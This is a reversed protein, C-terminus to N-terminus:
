PELAELREIMPLLLRAVEQETLEAGGSSDIVVRVVINGHQFEHGRDTLGGQHQWGSHWTPRDNVIPDDSSDYGAIHAPLMRVAVDGQATAITERSCLSNASDIAFTYAEARAATEFVRAVIRITTGDREYRGLDILEDDRAGSGVTPHGRVVPEVGHAFRCQANTTEVLQRADLAPGARMAVPAASGAPTIGLAALDAASPALTNVDSATYCEGSCPERDGLPGSSEPLFGAEPDGSAIFPDGAALADVDYPWSAMDEAASEVLTRFQEESISNDTSLGFRMVANARVLDFSYYRWGFEDVEVWGVGAVTEPLDLAPAPTVVANWQDGLRYSTCGDVLSVLSTMHAHAEESTLFLRMTHVSTSMENASGRSAIFHAADVPTSDAAPPPSDLAYALPVDPYTVFCSDPTGKSVTWGSAAAAFAQSPSSQREAGSGAYMVTLGATDYASPDLRAENIALAGFCPDDCDDRRVPEPDARPGDILPQAETPAFGFDDLADVLASTIGMVGGVVGAILGLAAATIGLGVTWRRASSWEQAPEDRLVHAQPPAAFAGSAARPANEAGPYGSPPAWAAREPPVDPPQPTSM